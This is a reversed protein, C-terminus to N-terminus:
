KKLLSIDGSTTKMCINSAGNGSIYLNNTREMSFDSSFDGSQTSQQLTFGADEPLYVTVKGSTSQLEFTDPAHLFDCCVDGSTSRVKMDQVEDITMDVGGSTTSISTTAAGFISLKQEGSTTSVNVSQVDHSHSCDLTVEGSTSRINITKAADLAGANEGADASANEEAVASVNEGTDTGENMESIGQADKLTNTNVKVDGSTSQVDYTEAECAANVTGSSTEVHLIGTKIGDATVDASGTMICIESPVNMEPLRVTLAKQPMIGIFLHPVANRIHLTTGDLWYHVRDDDSVKGLTVESIDVYDADHTEVAVSGSQWDIELKEVTGEIKADGVSYKDANEFSASSGMSCSCLLCMVALLTIMCLLKKM